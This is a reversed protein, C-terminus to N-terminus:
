VPETFRVMEVKDFQHGRKIGRTDRGGSFQERRFCASYAVYDLPITGPELIEDRHMNTVPVEATPIMWLDSPEDHYQNEAFKPLQGTGLLSESRVLYPPYIETYGPREIHLDLMWAIVARQLRAGLGKLFYFRSGSFKVGREFDVLGLAPALDWHAQPAFDFACRDGWHRLIVNESEDKGVPVDPDPLNPMELLARDLRDKVDNLEKELAGIREGLERMEAIKRNREAPDREQSVAKSGANRRARAEEVEGLIARHREDLALIEDLPTEMYLTAMRRRVEDANERIFRMDLM